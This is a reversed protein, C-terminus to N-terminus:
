RMGAILVAWRHARVLRVRFWDTPQAAAAATTTPTTATLDVVAAAAAAVVVVITVPDTPNIVRPDSRAVIFSGFSRGVSRGFSRVVSRGVSRCM